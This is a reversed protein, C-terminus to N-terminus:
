SRDSPTQERRPRFGMREGEAQYFREETGRAISAQNREYREESQREIAAFLRHVARALLLRRIM